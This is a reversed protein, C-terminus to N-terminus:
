HPCGVPFIEMPLVLSFSATAMLLVIADGDSDHYGLWPHASAVLCSVFVRDVFSQWRLQWGIPNKGCFPLNNVALCAHYSISLVRSIQRLKRRWHGWGKTLFYTYLCSFGFGDLPMNRRPICEQGGRERHKPSSRSSSNKLIHCIYMYVTGYKWCCRRVRWIAPNPTVDDSISDGVVTFKGYTFIYFPFFDIIKQFFLSKMLIIPIDWYTVWFSWVM